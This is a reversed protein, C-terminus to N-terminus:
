ISASLAPSAPRRMLELNSESATRECHDAVVVVGASTVAPVLPDAARGAPHAGETGEVPVHESRREARADGSGDRSRVSAGPIDDPLILVSDQLQTVFDRTVTFVFDPNTRYMKTLFKDVTAMTVDPRRKVFEPGWGKINNDYFLDRAEPRSGSPQALM